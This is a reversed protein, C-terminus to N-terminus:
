FSDTDTEMDFWHKLWQPHPDVWSGSVCDHFASLCYFLFVLQNSLNSLLSLLDVGSFIFLKGAPILITCRQFGIWFNSNREYSYGEWPLISSCPQIKFPSVSSKKKKKKKKKPKPRLSASSAAWLLHVRDNEWVYQATSLPLPKASGM